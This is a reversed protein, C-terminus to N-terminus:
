SFRMICTNPYVVLMEVQFYYDAIQVKTTVLTYVITYCCFVRADAIIFDQGYQVCQVALPRTFQRQELTLIM